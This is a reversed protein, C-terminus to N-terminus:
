QLNVVLIFAVIVAHMSLWAEPYWNLADECAASDARQHVPEGCADLDMGGACVHHRFYSDYMFLHTIGVIMYKKLTCSHWRLLDIVIKLTQKSGTIWGANIDFIQETHEVGGGKRDRQDYREIKGSEM